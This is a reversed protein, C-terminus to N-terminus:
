RRAGETIPVVTAPVAADVPVPQGSAELVANFINTYTGCRCINGSLGRRIQDMTPKPHKALLAKCAVVFGPTCFGCQLADHRVFAKQLPDLEGDAGAVGEITSIARGSADVALMMCSAVLMGDVLVSCAGCAGRDCVEKSGTMGLHLRLAELLTTGPECTVTSKAGNITLAVPAPDPGIIAPGATDQAAEGPAALARDAAAGLGAVAGSVGLTQIFSRRSVGDHPTSTM